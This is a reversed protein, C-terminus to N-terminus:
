ANRLINRYLCADILASFQRKDALSATTPGSRFRNLSSARLCAIREIVGRLLNKLTKRSSSFAIPRQFFRGLPFCHYTM